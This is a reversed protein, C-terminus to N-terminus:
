KWLSSIFCASKDANPSLSIESAAESTSMGAITASFHYVQIEIYAPSGAEKPYNIRSGPVMWGEGDPTVNGEGDCALFWGEGNYYYVSLTSVDDYGPCPITITVGNPFVAPPLLNVAAGVAEGVVLPPIEESPGITPEFGIEQMLNIDYTISAGALPGSTVSTTKKDPFAPDIITLLKPAKIAAEEETEQAQIRFRFSLPDMAEGTTDIAHITVEVTAEHSYANPIATENSRYYVAWLSHCVDGEGDLPVARLIKTGRGNIDNLRRNYTGSGDSITFTVANPDTVNIGNVSEIRVAFATNNPIREQSPLIGAGQVPLSEVIEIAFQPYSDPDNAATGHLYEEYNSWGDNDLDLDRDSANGPNLGNLVEYHDPIGDGDSDANLPSLTWRSAGWGPNNRASEYEARDTLGDGDSDANGNKATITGFWKKEWDDAMGDNDDDNIRVTSPAVANGAADTIASGIQLTYIIYPQLTGSNLPLRFTKGTGSEDTGNGSILLGNNLSYSGALGANKMGSESYTITLSSDTYNIVPFGTVSPVGNDVVFTNNSHSGAANGAADNAAVTVVATGDNDSPITTTYTWQKNSVQTMTANSVDSGAGAYKVSMRPTGSIPSSDTFNATVTVSEGAKIPNAKSYSVAVTPAVRDLFVNAKSAVSSVVGKDDKVWAYVTRNGDADSLVFDSVTFIANQRPGGPIARFTEGTPNSKGDLILYESVLVDDTAVVRVSVNRNNTYVTTSGSQGGVELSSITPTGNPIASFSVSVAKTSNMTVTNTTATSSNNDTGTWSAVLYDNAPTATLTVVTGADYTGSTPSITGSGSAVSASLQYQTVALSASVENSYGSELGEINFATVVFYYTGASLGHITFEPSGPNLLSSLPVIIPSAGDSSGSGNYPGGQITGYHVKYGALNTETNAGWALTVDAAQALGATGIVFAFVLAVLGSFHKIKVM